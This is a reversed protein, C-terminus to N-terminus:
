SSAEHIPLYGFQRLLGQAAPSLLFQVVTQAANPRLSRAAVAATQELPPYLGPPAAIWHGKESIVQSASVFAAEVDGAQAFQYSQTVNEGFVLKPQVAEWLGTAQLAQRAAAGYPAHDPNPMAIRQIEPRTLDQFSELLLHDDRTWIVLCGSAFPTISNADLLGAPLLEEVYDENASLFLDVPAGQEIQQALRGSSGYNFVVDMGVAEQLAPTLATLVPQLNAAASILLPGNKSQGGCGALPLFFLILILILIPIQGRALLGTCPRGGAPNRHIFRRQAPFLM